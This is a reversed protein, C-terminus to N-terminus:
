LTDRFRLLRFLRLGLLAHALMQSSLMFVNRTYLFLSAAYPCARFLRLM